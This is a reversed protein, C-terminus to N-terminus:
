KISPRAVNLIGLKPVTDVFTCGELQIANRVRMMTHSPVTAWEEDYKKKSLSARSRAVAIRADHAVEIEVIREPVQRWGVTLLFPPWTRLAKRSAAAHRQRNGKSHLLLPRGL